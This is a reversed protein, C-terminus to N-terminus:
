FSSKEVSETPLIAPDTESIIGDPTSLSLEIDCHLYKSTSLTATQTDEFAAKKATIIINNILSTNDTSLTKSSGQLEGDIFLKVTTPIKEELLPHEQLLTKKDIKRQAQFVEEISDRVLQLLISRSM